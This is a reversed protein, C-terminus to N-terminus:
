HFTISTKIIRSAVSHSNTTTKYHFLLTKVKIVIRKFGWQKRSVCDNYVRRNIKLIFRFLVVMRNKPVTLFFQVRAINKSNTITNTNTLSCINVMVVTSLRNRGGILCGLM